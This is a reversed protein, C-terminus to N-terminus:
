SIIEKSIQELTLIGRYHEEEDVVVAVQTQSTVISDLAQRLSSKATVYASFKKPSLAGVSQQGELDASPEEVVPDAQNGGRDDRQPRVQDKM